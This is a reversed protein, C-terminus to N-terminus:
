SHFSFRPCNLKPVETGVDSEYAYRLRLPLLICIVCAKGDVNNLFSKNKTNKVSHSVEFFAHPQPPQKSNLNIKLAPVKSRSEQIDFV